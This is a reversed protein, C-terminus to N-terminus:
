VVFEGGQDAFGQRLVELRFGDLLADNVPSVVVVADLGRRKFLLSPAIMVGDRKM